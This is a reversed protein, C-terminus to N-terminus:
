HGSCSGEKGKKDASCSGEKAKKDASCSGEKAKAKKDASCSGEKAKKDSACSGEHAKKKATSCKGESCKGEKAKHETKAEPKAQDAAPAAEDALMYGTKMQNLQFDSSANAIQSMSLSGIFAAGIALSLPKIIKNSRRM